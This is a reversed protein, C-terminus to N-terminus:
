YEHWPKSSVLYSIPGLRMVPGFKHTEDYKSLLCLVEYEAGGHKRRAGGYNFAFINNKEEIKKKKM